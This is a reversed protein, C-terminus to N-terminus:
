GLEARLASRASEYLRGKIARLTAPDKGALEAARELARSLVEEEAAALM